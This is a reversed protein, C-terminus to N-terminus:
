SYSSSRGYKEQLREPYWAWCADPFLGTNFVLTYAVNIIMTAGYPQGGAVGFARADQIQHFLTEIPQNPDYSANLREYKQTLETTAIIAYYTFLHTLLQLSTCNAYGVIEDSLAILYADDFLEIILKKIAHDVNHYTCYVQTASKQIQTTEVIVAATMGEV